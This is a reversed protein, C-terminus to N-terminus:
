RALKLWGSCLDADEEELVAKGASGCEHGLGQARDEVQTPIGKRRRSTVRNETPARMSCM